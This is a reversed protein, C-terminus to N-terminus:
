ETEILRVHKIDDISTKTEFSPRKARIHMIVFYLVLLGVIGCIILLVIVFTKFSSKVIVKIPPAEYSNSKGNLHNTHKTFYCKNVNQVFHDKNVSCKKINKDLNECELDNSNENFTIGNLSSADKVYYYINLSDNTRFDLVDPYITQIFSGQKSSDTVIKDKNKGPQIRFNYKVSVNKLIIEEKIEDLTTSKQPGFCVMLLPNQEYKRFGCKSEEGDFTMIFTGTSTYVKSIDSVNTKYAIYTDSESCNVLLKTIDVYIDKKIINKHIIRIELILNLKNFMHNDDLYEIIFNEENKVMVEELKDRNIYCNLEKESVSCKELYTYISDKTFFLKEKNYSNIKFKLDYTTKGSEINIVQVDSYLNIINSDKKKVKFDSNSTLKIEYKGYLFTIANLNLSYEGKPITENFDCFIKFNIAEAKWLRCKIKYNNDDGDSVETSFTTKEEIDSKLFKNQDDSYDTNLVAAGKKGVEDGNEEFGIVTIDISDISNVIIILVFILLIIITKM